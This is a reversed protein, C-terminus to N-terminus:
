WALEATGNHIAEHCEHCVMLTKRHIRMMIKEWQWRGTLDSMKRIQHIEVNRDLRGCLECYKSKFRSIVEKEHGYKEFLEPVDNVWKKAVNQKKFGKNYFVIEKIGSNTEYPVVIDDDKKFRKVVTSVNTRYKAALTKLMSYKMLGGFKNLVSANYAIAYFNYLGRIESNYRNVIVAPPKTLLKKRVQAKWKESGDKHKVIRIAEYEFLKREWKAHPVYLAVRSSYVRRRIKKNGRWIWKINKDRRVKIEYGLYSARDSTHTIKTKELSLTLHLKKDLFEAIERKVVRADEKSGGIGILFDDAYRSYVLWKRQSRIDDMAQMKSKKNLLAKVEKM